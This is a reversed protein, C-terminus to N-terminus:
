DAAVMKRFPILTGHKFVFGVHGRPRRSNVILSAEQQIAGKNPEKKQQLATLLTPHLNQVVRSVFPSFRRKRVGECGHQRLAASLFGTQGAAAAGGGTTDRSRQSPSRFFAAGPHWFQRFGGASALGPCSACRRRPM